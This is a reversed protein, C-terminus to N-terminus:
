RNYVFHALSRKLILTLDSDQFASTPHRHALVQSAGTLRICAVESAASSSGAGYGICGGILM